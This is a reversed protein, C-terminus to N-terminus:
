QIVTCSAYVSGGYAWLSFGHMGRVTVTSDVYDKRRLYFTGQTATSHSSELRTRDLIDGGPKYVFIAIDVPRSPMLQSSSVTPGLTYYINVTGPIMYRQVDLRGDSVTGKVTFCVKCVILKGNVTTVEGGKSVTLRWEYSASPLRRGSSDLGNWLPLWNTGQVMPGSYVTKVVGNAGLIDLRGWTGPTNVDCTFRTYLGSKLEYAIPNSFKANTVGPAALASTTFAFTMAAALALVVLIRRSFHSRTSM